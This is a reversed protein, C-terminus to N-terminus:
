KRTVNEASERSWLPSTGKGQAVLARRGACSGGWKFESEKPQGVRGVALPCLLWVLFPGRSREYAIRKASDSSMDPIVTRFWMGHYLRSICHDGLIMGKNPLKVPFTLAKQLKLSSVRYEIQRLLDWCNCPM